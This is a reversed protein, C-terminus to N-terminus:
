AQVSNQSGKLTLWKDEFANAEIPKGFYYGQIQDFVITKCLDYQKQTEIGKLAVKFGLKKGLECMAEIIVADEATKLADIYSNDIKILKVPYSQLSSFCTHGSGFNDLIFTIGISRMNEMLQLASSSESFANELVELQLASPGIKYQLFAAKLRDVILEGDLQTSTINASISINLQNKYKRKWAAYQQCVSTIVWDGLQNILGLSEIVPIFDIPYGLTGDPKQWRIFAEIGVLGAGDSDFVPQYHLVFQKQEIAAKLQNDLEIKAKIKKHLQDSYFHSQNRGSEKSRYLAIDACKMLDATNDANVPYIAVGISTSIAIPKDDYIVPQKFAAYLRDIFKHIFVEDDLQPILAVFEDGGLRCIIDGKRATEKVRTGVSKLLEDGAAHGLSDNVEKFHDLDIMVVALNKKDRKSQLLTKQISQEFHYRNALGTLSDREAIKLISHYNHILDQEKNDRAKAFMLSQKLRNATVDEKRLFDQAGLSICECALDEDDLHSLMVVAIDQNICNKIHKLVEIGDQDPLKYDLLVLDFHEEHLRKLAKAATNVEIIEFESKALKLNRKVTMRDIKDDDVVLIKM